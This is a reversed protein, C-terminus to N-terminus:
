SWDKKENECHKVLVKLQFRLVQAQRGALHRDKVTRRRPTHRCRPDVPLLVVLDYAGAEASYLLEGVAAQDHVLHSLDVFTSENADCLVHEANSLARESSQGDITLSFSSLM